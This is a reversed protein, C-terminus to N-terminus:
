APTVGAVGARGAVEAIALREGYRAVIGGLGDVEDAGCGRLAGMGAWGDDVGSKEARSEM